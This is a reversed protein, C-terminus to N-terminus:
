TGLSTLYNLKEKQEDKIHFKDYFENKIKLFIYLFKSNKM